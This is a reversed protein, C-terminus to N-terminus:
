ADDEGGELWSRCMVIVDDILDDVAAYGGHFGMTRWFERELEAHAVQRDTDRGFSDHLQRDIEALRALLLENAQPLQDLLREAHAVAEHNRSDDPYREAVQGRWYVLGQLQGEIYERPTDNGPDLYQM